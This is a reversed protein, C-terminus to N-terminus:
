LLRTEGPDKGLIAFKEPEHEAQARIPHTAPKYYLDGVQMEIVELHEPKGRWEVTFTERTGGGAASEALRAQVTARNEEARPPLGYDKAM